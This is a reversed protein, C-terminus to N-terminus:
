QPSSSSCRADEGAGDNWSALPPAAHAAGVLPLLVLLVALLARGFRPHRM